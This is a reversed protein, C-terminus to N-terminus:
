ILNKNQYKLIVDRLSLDKLTEEIAGEIKNIIEDVGSVRPLRKEVNFVEEESTRVAKIVGNLKITDMDKSLVYGPPEDNTEIIFDKKKLLEVIDYVPEVPIQLYEVLTNINWPSSGKYHHVGILFMVTLALREKLRNSLLMAEPKISLLQPYQHYFSVSAGVLLILWSLYLWILFLIMIAFGSYIAAYKTSSVVFSAFAWGTSEWLVGGFIGGVLASRFNVKTNPVFIYIFTFAACILVYPLLKGTYTIIIGLPQVSTITKMLSTSMVSATIGMASFVLVPGILLVSMYDSFRRAFSRTHKVRWIHNFTDEIKKILSIVTYILLGLGASGLIGVKINEVFGIIRETLEAGKPGLPSLFNQLVPEIQNHIGFAKLVSFSVALLPVISLITTYVLSMARLNLEGKIFERFTLYLLRLLNILIGTLRNRKKLDINWLDQLFFQDIKKVINTM